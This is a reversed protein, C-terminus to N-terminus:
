RRVERHSGDLRRTWGRGDLHELLPIVTRRTSELALRAESTTFPQAMGALVRMARAPATPLLVVEPTLRLLRGASEAAALQRPGLGAADLEHQEPATFPHAALRQEIQVLAAEVGPELSARVGPIGVRGGAVELGAAAAVEPLLERDPLGTAARAAELSLTPQMPHAKVHEDLVAKLTTSWGQWTQEDVLWQGRRLVEAPLADVAHGLAVADAVALVGRRHVEHALDPIGDREALPALETARRQAAGRRALEPPDADLVRAGALVTQAGPDRLIVRDGAQLPLPRPFTLRALRESLPRVRTELALTGVHAMVRAPAERAVPPDLTVDVVSTRHWRGAALLVDGRRVHEAGLGRLNIAVRAVAGVAERPQELSQLGRVTVEVDSDGARSLLLHDGVAVRGQGLTGTVVTGSGRITFSRDVWLRVRAEPDPAPLAAVLRGLADKLEGIGEGTRASVAVAECQLGASELRQRADALTATPDALDSRTVALVGHRLGLARVAALHEESQQRWGEDAAVVFVVAPAPGLGALMNGIFRQHGPVDVFAVEAGTPLTTWAYGLDITLGRRHEEEWRDPEIGTLARVLASKGHDVHGATALVHM